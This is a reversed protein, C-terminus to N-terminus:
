AQRSAAIRRRIAGGLGALGTGMLILSSPEPTVAPNYAMFQQPIGGSKDDQNRQDYTVPVYFTFESYFTSSQTIESATILAEEASKEQQTTLGTFVDNNTNSLNSNDLVSWIADQVEQNTISTDNSTYKSDLYADEKLETLTIGANYTTLLSPTQIAAEVTFAEATWSEGVNVTRNNNLCSLDALTNKGNSNINFDYPSGNASDLTLTVLSAAQSVSPVLCVAFLFLPLASIKLKM